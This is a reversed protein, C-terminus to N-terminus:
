AYVLGKGLHLCAAPVLTGERPKGPSGLAPSWEPRTAPPRTARFLRKKLTLGSEAWPSEHRLRCAPVASSSQNTISALSRRASTTSVGVATLSAPRCAVGRPTIRPANANKCARLAQALSNRGFLGDPVRVRV